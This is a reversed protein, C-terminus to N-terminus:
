RPHRRQLRVAEVHGVGHLARPRRHDHEVTRRARGALVPRGLQGREALGEPDVQRVRPTVAAGAPVDRLAEGRLEQHGVQRGEDVGEAQRGEVEDAEAQARHGRQGVRGAVGVPQPRQEDRADVRLPLRAGADGTVEHVGVADRAVLRGPRRLQVAAVPGHLSGTRPAVEHAGDGVVDRRLREQRRGLQALDAHRGQQGVAVAVHERRQRVHDGQVALERVRPEEHRGVAVVLDHDRPRGEEVVRGGREITLRLRDGPRTGDPSGLGPPTSWGCRCGRGSGWTAAASRASRRPPAGM